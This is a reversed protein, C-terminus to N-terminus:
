LIPWSATFWFNHLIKPRPVDRPTIKSHIVKLLLETWKGFGTIVTHVASHSQWRFVHWIGVLTNHPYGLPRLHFSNKLVTVFCRSFRKCIHNEEIYWLKEDFSLLVSSSTYWTYKLTDIAVQSMPESATYKSIKAYGILMLRLTNVPTRALQSCYKVPLDFTKSVCFISCWWKYQWINLCIGIKFIKKIGNTNSLIDALIRSSRRSSVNTAVWAFHICALLIWRGKSDCVSIARRRMRRIAMMRLTLPESSGHM